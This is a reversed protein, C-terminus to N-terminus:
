CAARPAISKRFTVASMEHTQRNPNAVHANARTGSYGRNRIMSASDM